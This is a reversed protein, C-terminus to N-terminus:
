AHRPFLRLIAGLGSRPATRTGPEMDSTRVHDDTQSRRRADAAQRDASRYTKALDISTTPSM